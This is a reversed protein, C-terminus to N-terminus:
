RGGGVEGRGDGDGDGQRARERGRAREDGVGVRVVPVAVRRDREVKDDRRQGHLPGYQDRPEPVVRPISPRPKSKVEIEGANGPAM